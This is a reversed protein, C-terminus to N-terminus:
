KAYHIFFYVPMCAEGGVAWKSVQGNPGDGGESATRLDAPGGETGVHPRRPGGLYSAVPHAFHPVLPGM